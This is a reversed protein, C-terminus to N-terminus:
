SVESKWRHLFEEGGRRHNGRDPEGEGGADQNLPVTEEWVQQEVGHSRCHDM